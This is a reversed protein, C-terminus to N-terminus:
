LASRRTDLHHNSGRSHRPEPTVRHDVTEPRKARDDVGGGVHPREPVAPEHGHRLQEAQQWPAGLVPDGGAADAGGARVEHAHAEALHLDAGPNPHNLSPELRVPEANRPGAVATRWAVM